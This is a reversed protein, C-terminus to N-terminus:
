KAEEKVRVLEYVHKVPKRLPAIEKEKAEVLPDFLPIERANNGQEHKRFGFLYTENQPRWRHFYLLNKENITERLKEVQDYEPCNRLKVGISWDSADPLPHPELGFRHFTKDRNEDRPLKVEKGDIRLRYLGEPLDE